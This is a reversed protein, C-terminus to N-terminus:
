PRAYSDNLPLGLLSSVHHTAMQDSETLLRRLRRRPWEPRASLFRQVALRLLSSIHHTAVQNPETLLRRLGRRLWSRRCLFRKVALGLLEQKRRSSGPSCNATMLAAPYPDTM